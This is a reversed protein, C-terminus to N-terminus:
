AKAKKILDEISHKKPKAAEVAPVPPGEVKVHAPIEAKMFRLKGDGRTMTALKKAVLGVLVKENREMNAATLAIVSSLRDYCFFAESSLVIIKKTKAM